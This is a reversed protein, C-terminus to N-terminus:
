PWSRNRNRERMSLGRMARRCCACGVLGLRRGAKGLNFRRRRLHALMAGPDTCALWEAETMGSQEWLLEMAADAAEPTGSPPLSGSSTGRCLSRGAQEEEWTLSAKTHRVGVIGTAFVSAFDPEAQTKE